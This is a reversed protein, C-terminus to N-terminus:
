LTTTVTGGGPCDCQGTEVDFCFQVNQDSIIGELANISDEADQNVTLDSCNVLECAASIDCTFTDQGCTLQISGACTAGSDANTVTASGTLSDCSGAPQLNLTGSATTGSTQKLNLTGTFGVPTELPPTTCAAFTATAEPGGGDGCAVFASVAVFMMLIRTFRRM